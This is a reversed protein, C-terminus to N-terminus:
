VWTPFWTWIGGRFLPFRYGWLAMPVPLATLFPLFLVFLTAALVV